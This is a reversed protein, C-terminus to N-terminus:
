GSRGPAVRGNDGTGHGAAPTLPWPSFKLGQQRHSNTIFRREDDGVRGVVELQFFGLFVFPYLGLRM